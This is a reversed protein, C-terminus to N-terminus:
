KSATVSQVTVADGNLTGKVAVKQGALKALETEHGELTYLKKDAALAYKMGAKVCQRTCEAPSKDKAMHKTGCM